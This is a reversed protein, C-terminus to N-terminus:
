QVGNYHYSRGGKSLFEKKPSYKLTQKCFLPGVVARYQKGCKAKTEYMHLGQTKQRYKEHAHNEAVYLVPCTRKPRGNSKVENVVSKGQARRVEVVAL